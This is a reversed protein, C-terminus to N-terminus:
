GEEAVQAANQRAVDVARGAVEVENQRDALVKSYEEMERTKNEIRTLDAATDAMNARATSLKAEATALSEEAAYQASRCQKERQEVDAVRSALRTEEQSVRQLVLTSHGDTELRQTALANREYRVRALTENVETLMEAARAAEAMARDERIGLNASVEAVAAEREALAETKTKLEERDAKVDAQNSSIVSQTAENRAEAVRMRSERVDIEAMMRIVSDLEKDEPLRNEPIHLARALRVTVLSIKAQSSDINSADSALRSRLESLEKRAVELDADEQVQAAKATEFEEVNSKHKMIAANLDSITMEPGPLTESSDNISTVHGRVGAMVWSVVKDVHDLNTRLAALSQKVSQPSSTKIEKNPLNPVM